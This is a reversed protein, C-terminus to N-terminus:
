QFNSIPFQINKMVTAMEVAAMGAEYGKNEKGQGSRADAQDVTDTTLVGFIVPIHGRLNLEMIGSSVARSIYEFHPTEGRIVAGLCIVADVERREMIKAATFPIEFAGPVHYATIDEAAVGAEQLARRAGQELGQTVLENFRSVVLAFKMGRGSLNISFVNHDM